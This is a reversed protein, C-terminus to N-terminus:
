SSHRGNNGGNLIELSSVTVTMSRYLANAALRGTLLIEDGEALTAAKEASPGFAVCGFRLPLDGGDTSVTFVTKPRGDKTAGEKPSGVASGSLTIVNM